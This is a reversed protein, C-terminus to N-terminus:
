RSCRIVKCNALYHLFSLHLFTIHIESRFAPNASLHYQVHSLTSNSNSNSIAALAILFDRDMHGTLESVKSYNKRKQDEM